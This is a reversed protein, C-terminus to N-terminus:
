APRPKSRVFLIASVFYGGSLLIELGGLLPQGSAAAAVGHCFYVLVLMSSWAATYRRGRLLGRLPLLLPGVLLILWPARLAPEPPALWVGWLMLLVFLGLWQALSLRQWLLARSM